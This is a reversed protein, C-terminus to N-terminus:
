CGLRYTQRRLFRFSLYSATQFDCCHTPFFRVSGFINPICCSVNIHICCSVNIHICCVVNIHICCSVHLMFCAVHFMCCSVHLMFCAVNIHICCSFYTICTTFKYTTLLYSNIFKNFLIFNTM